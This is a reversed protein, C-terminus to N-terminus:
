QILSETNQCPTEKGTIDEEKLYVGSEKTTVAYYEVWEVVKNQKMDYKEKVKIEKIVARGSFSVEDGIQYLSKVM